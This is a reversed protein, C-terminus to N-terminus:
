GSACTASSCRSTAATAFSRRRHGGRQRRRHRAGPVLQRARRRRRRAASRRDRRPTRRRDARGVAARRTDAPRGVRARRDARRDPPRPRARHRVLRRLDPQLDVADLPLLGPRHDRRQAPPRPQPRAPAAPPADHRREPRDHDEPASRDAGRVARRPPRVRRVGDLVARQPRDDAQLPQVRRHRHLRAPPRRPARRGVPVPVHRARVAERRPRGRARPRRAPRDPEADRVHARRGVPGALAARDGARARRHVSPTPTDTVSTPAPQGVTPQESTM